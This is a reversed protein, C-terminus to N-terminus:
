SSVVLVAVHGGMGDDRRGPVSEPVFWTGDAAVFAYHYSGPALAGRWIWRGGELTMPVPKWGTFDGAISPRGEVSRAPIRVEARGDSYSAPVPARLAAARGFRVSMGAALSRESRASYVPDFGNDRATVHLELVPGIGVRAGAGWAVGPVGDSIWRGASGWLQIPGETFHLSGGAYAHREPGHWWARTEGGVVIPLRALTIRADATPLIRTVGAGDLESRQGTAGGRMEFHLAGRGAHVGGLAEAGAGWGSVAIDRTITESGPLPLPSPSPAPSETTTTFRQVFGHMGVDALLGAAGPTLLRRGAGASAWFPDGDVPLASSFSFWDRVAHRSLGIVLSANAAAGLAAGNTTVRGMQVTARWEQAGAPRSLTILAFTAGAVARRLAASV